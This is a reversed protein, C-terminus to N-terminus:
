GPFFGCLHLFWVYTQNLFNRIREGRQHKVGIESQTYICYHIDNRESLPTGLGTSNGIEPEPWVALGEEELRADGM